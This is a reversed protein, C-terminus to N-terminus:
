NLPAPPAAGPKGFYGEDYIVSTKLKLAEVAKVGLEPKMAAEIEARVDEFKKAGRSEILILHYGFASKVPESVQGV